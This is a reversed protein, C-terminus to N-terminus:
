CTLLLTVLHYLQILFNTTARESENFFYMSFFLVLLVDIVIANLTLRRCNHIREVDIRTGETAPLAAFLHVM